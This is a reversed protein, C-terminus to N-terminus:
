FETNYKCQTVVSLTIYTIKLENISGSGLKQFKLEYHEVLVIFTQIQNRLINLHHM